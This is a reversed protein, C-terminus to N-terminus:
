ILKEAHLNFPDFKDLNNLGQAYETVGERPTYEFCFYPYWDEAHNTGATLWVHGTEDTLYMHDETESFYVNVIPRNHFIARREEVYESSLLPIEGLSSRYGDQEDELVEFVLNGLKFMKDDCGYFSYLTHEEVIDSLYV